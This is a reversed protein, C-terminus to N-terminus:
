LQKQFAQVAKAIGRLQGHDSRHDAVAHASVSRRAVFYGDHSALEIAPLSMYMM